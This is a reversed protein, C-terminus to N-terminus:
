LNYKDLLENILKGGITYDSEVEVFDEDKLSYYFEVKKIGLRRKLYIEARGINDKLLPLLDLLIMKQENDFNKEISDILSTFQHDKENKVKTAKNHAQQAIQKDVFLIEESLKKYDEKNGLKKLQFLVDIKNYFEGNVNKILETNKSLVSLAHKCLTKRGGAPCNCSVCNDYLTVTYINDSSSSKIEEQALIEGPIIKEM